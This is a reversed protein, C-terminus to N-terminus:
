SRPSGRRCSGTRREARGAGRLGTRLPGGSRVGRHAGHARITKIPLRSGNLAHYVNSFRVLASRFDRVLAEPWKEGPTTGTYRYMLAFSGRRSFYLSNLGTDAYFAVFEYYLQVAPDDSKPPLLRTVEGDISAADLYKMVSVRKNGEIVYYYGMYELATVPQNVGESEM